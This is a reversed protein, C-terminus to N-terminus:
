RCGSFPVGKPPTEEYLGIYPTGVGGGRGHLCDQIDFNGCMEIFVVEDLSLGTICIKFTKCLAM